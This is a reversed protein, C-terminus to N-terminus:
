FRQAITSAIAHVNESLFARIDQPAALVGIWVLIAYPVLLLGAKEASWRGTQFMWSVAILLGVGASKGFSIDLMLLAIFYLGGFFMARAPEIAAFFALIDKDEEQM